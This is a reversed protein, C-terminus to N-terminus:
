GVFTYENKCSYFYDILQGITTGRKVYVVKIENTKINKLKVEVTDSGKYYSFLKYFDDSDDKYIQDSYNDIIDM